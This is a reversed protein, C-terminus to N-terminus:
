EETALKIEVDISEKTHSDARWPCDLSEENPLDDYNLPIGCECIPMHTLEDGNLNKCRYRGIHKTDLGDCCYELSKSIIRKENVAIIGDTTPKKSRSKM